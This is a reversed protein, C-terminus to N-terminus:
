KYAKNLKANEAKCKAVLHKNSRNELYMNNYKAKLHQYALNAEKVIMSPETEENNRTESLPVSNVIGYRTNTVIKCTSDEKDTSSNELKSEEDILLVSADENTLM